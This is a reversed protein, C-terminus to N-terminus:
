FDDRRFDEVFAGHVLTLDAEGIHGVHLRLDDVNEAVVRHREDRHAHPSADGYLNTNGLPKQSSGLPM